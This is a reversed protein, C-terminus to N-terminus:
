QPKNNGEEGHGAGAFLSAKVEGAMLGTRERMAVAASDLVVKDLMKDGMRSSRGAPRSVMGQVERIKLSLDRMQKSAFDRNTFLPSQSLTQVWYKHWLLELLQTDLSSKFHSVELPYYRDAHAGFEAAKDLPVATQGGGAGGAGNQPVYGTPFTRFAGIDVKGSNVTRDPDVVVALFPDSFQQQAVQTGM